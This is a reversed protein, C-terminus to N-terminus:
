PNGFNFPLKEWKTADPVKDFSTVWSLHDTLKRVEFFQADTDTLFCSYGKMIITDSKDTRNVYETGFNTWACFHTIRVFYYIALFLTAVGAIGLIADKQHARKLLQHLVFVVSACLIPFIFPWASINYYQLPLLLFLIAFYVMAIVTNRLKRRM